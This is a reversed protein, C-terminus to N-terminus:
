QWIRAINTDIRGCISRVGLDVMKKAQPFLTKITDEASEAEITVMSKVTNRSPLVQKLDELTMSNYKKGLKVGAMILEQLGECELERFPRLGLTVFRSAAKILEDRELPDIKFQNHPTVCAHRLLQTTTGLVAYQSYM